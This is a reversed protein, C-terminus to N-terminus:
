RVARYPKKWSSRQIERYHTLARFLATVALEACHNEAEPLTELFAIVEAPTIRWASEITKGESIQAVANACANTNLCGDTAISISQIQGSRVTLFFEVTEGCGGNHKGYGDPNEIRGHRDCGFAMKLFQQSHQRNVETHQDHM